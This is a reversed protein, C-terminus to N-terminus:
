CPGLELAAVVRRFTESDFGPEVIVRRGTSLIVEIALRPVPEIIPPTVLERLRVPLFAPTSKAATPESFTAAM